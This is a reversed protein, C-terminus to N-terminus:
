KQAYSEPRVTDVGTWESGLSDYFGSMDEGSASLEQQLSMIETEHLPLVM